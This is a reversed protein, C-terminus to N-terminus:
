AARRKKSTDTEPADVEAPRTQPEEDVLWNSQGEIEEGTKPDNTIAHQYTQVGVGYTRLVLTAERRRFVKWARGVEVTEYLDARANVTIARRPGSVADVAAAPAKEGLRGGKNGVKAVLVAGAKEASLKRGQPDRVPPKADTALRLRFSTPPEEFVTEGTETANADILQLAVQQVDQDPYRLVTTLLPAGAAVLRRLEAAVYLELAEPKQGEHDNFYDLQYM